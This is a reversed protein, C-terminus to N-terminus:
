IRRHYISENLYTSSKKIILSPLCGCDITQTSLCAPIDVYELTDDKFDCQLFCEPLFCFLSRM